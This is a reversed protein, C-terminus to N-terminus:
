KTFVAYAQWSEKVIIEIAKIGLEVKRSAIDFVVKDMGATAEAYSRNASNAEKIGVVWDEVVYVGGEKLFPWLVDFTNRTEKAFHSGDDIVIDFGGAEQALKTMGASDNQDIVRTVISEPLIDPRPLIDTGYIKAKPLMDQFMLLSGGDLVGVELLSLDDRSTTYRALLERYVSEMGSQYKDTPYKM